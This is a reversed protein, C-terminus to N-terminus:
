TRGGRAWGRWVAYPCQACTKEYVARGHSADTKRLEDPTYIAKFKAILARKDEATRRVSGWVKALKQNVGANSLTALQRIVVTSIDGRPIVGRDVADLMAVAWQPRSALTNVADARAANGLGPYAGLIV